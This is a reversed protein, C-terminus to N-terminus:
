LILFDDQDFVLNNTRIVEVYKPKRIYKMDNNMYVAFKTRTGRLVLYFGDKCDYFDCDQLCRVSTLLENRYLAKRLVDKKENSMNKLIDMALEKDYKYQKIDNKNKDDVYKMIKYNIDVLTEEDIIQPEVADNTNVDEIFCKYIYHEKNIRYSEIILLGLIYEGLVHKMKFLRGSFVINEDVIVSVIQMKNICKKEIEDILKM